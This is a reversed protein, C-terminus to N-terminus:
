KDYFSLKFFRFKFWIKICINHFLMERQKSGRSAVNSGKRKLKALSECFASNLDKFTDM